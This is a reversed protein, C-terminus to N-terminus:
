PTARCHRWWLACGSSSKPTAESRSRSTSVATKPMAKAISLRTQCQARSARFTGRCPSCRTVSCPSNNRRCMNRPSVSSLTSPKPACAWITRGGITPTVAFTPSTSLPSCRPPSGDAFPPTTGNRSASCTRWWSSLATTGSAHPEATAEM